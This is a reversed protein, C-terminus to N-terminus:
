ITVGLLNLGCCIILFIISLPILFIIAFLIIEWIKEEFSKETM